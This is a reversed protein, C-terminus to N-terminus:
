DWSPSLDLVDIPFPDIPDETYFNWIFKLGYILWPEYVARNNFVEGLRIVINLAPYLSLSWSPLLLGGAELLKGKSNSSVRTASSWPFDVSYFTNTAIKDYLSENVELLGTVEKQFEYMYHNLDRDDIEIHGLMDLVLNGIHQVRWAPNDADIISYPRVKDVLYINHVGKDAVEMEGATYEQPKTNTPIFDWDNLDESAIVIEFQHSKHVTFDIQMDGMTLVNQKFFVVAKNEDYITFTKKTLNYIYKYGEVLTYVIDPASVSVGIPIGLSGWFAFNIEDGYYPPFAGFRLFRLPMIKLSNMVPKAFDFGHGAVMGLPTMKNYTATFLNYGGDAM